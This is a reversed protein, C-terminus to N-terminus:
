TSKDVGLIFGQRVCKDLFNEISKELESNSDLGFIEQIQNLSEGISRGSILFDILMKHLSSIELYYVKKSEPNRFALLMFKSKKRFIEDWNGKHVPYDLELIEFDPNIVLRNENAFEFPSFAPFSRDERNFVLIESWELALLDSLYPYKKLLILESTRIFQYFEGPVKWVQPEKADHKELYTHVLEKFEPETLISKCVPFSKELLGYMVNYVLRRYHPLRDPMTGQISEINGTRCFSALQNQINKTEDKLLM